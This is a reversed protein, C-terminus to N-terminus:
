KDKTHRNIHLVELVKGWWLRTSVAVGLVGAVALQFLYSGSGPDLYAHANQGSLVVLGVVLMVVSSITAACRIM